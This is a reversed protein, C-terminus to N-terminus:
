VPLASFVIVGAGRCSQRAGVLIDRMCHTLAAVLKVGTGRMAHARTSVDVQPCVDNRVRRLAM